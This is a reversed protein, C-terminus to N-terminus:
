ANCYLIYRVKNVRHLITDRSAGGFAGIMQGFIIMLIAQSAGGAVASVTGVLMLAMDKGDAHKFLEHFKVRGDDNAM